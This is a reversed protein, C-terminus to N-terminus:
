KEEKGFQEMLERQKPTLNKPVKLKFHVIENGIQSTNLRKIGRENLTMTENPQTGPNIKIQTKGDLTPVEITTGLTAQSLTLPVDVHVDFGERRFTPHPSVRVRIYLDGSRSGGEGYEGSGQLRIVGGNDIGPPIDIKLSKQSRVNGKGSCSPCPDTITKGKGGCSRCTQVM